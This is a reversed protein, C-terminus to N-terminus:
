AAICVLPYFCCIFGAATWYASGSQPFGSSNLCLAGHFPRCRRTAIEWELLRLFAVLPNGTSPRVQPPCKATPSTRGWSEEQQTDSVSFAALGLSRAPSSSRLIEAPLPLISRSRARPVLLAGKPLTPSLQAAQGMCCPYTRPCPGGLAGFCRTGQRQRAAKQNAKAAWSLVAHCGPRPLRQRSAGWVKSKDCQPMGLSSLARAISSEAQESPFSTSALAVHM